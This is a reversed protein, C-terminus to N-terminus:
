EFWRDAVHRLFAWHPYAEDKALLRSFSREAQDYRWQSWELLVAREAATYEGSHAELEAESSVHWGCLVDAWLRPVGKQSWLRKLDAQTPMELAAALPLEPDAGQLQATYTPWIIDDALLLDSVQSAHLGSVQGIRVEMLHHSLAEETPIWEDTIEDMCRELLAQGLGGEILAYIKDEATLRVLVPDELYHPSLPVAQRSSSTPVSSLRGAAEPGLQLPSSPAGSEESLTESHSRFSGFAGLLLAGFALFAFFYLLWHGDKSATM